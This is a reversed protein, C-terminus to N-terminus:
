HGAKKKESQSLNNRILAMAWDDKFKKEDFIVGMRLDVLLENALRKIDKPTVKDLKRPFDYAAEYGQFFENTVLSSALSAHTEQTLFYSTAFVTKYEDLESQSYTKTKLKQIVDNMAAL